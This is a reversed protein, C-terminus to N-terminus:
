GERECGLKEFLSESIVYEKEMPIQPFNTGRSKTIRGIEHALDSVDEVGIIYDSVYKKIVAGRIGIQIAQRDLRKGVLDREPDWQHIVDSNHLKKSWDDEELFVDKNWHTEVSQNLIERFAQHSLKIKAIAQMRNKTGYNSRRLLWCFSPKIWTIRDLGFGKGFTGLEVAVKVIKPKFAQYVYIGEEDFDAYILRKM